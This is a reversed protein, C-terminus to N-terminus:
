KKWKRGEYKRGHGGCRAWGCKWIDLSGVALDGPVRILALEKIREKERAYIKGEQCPQSISDERIPKRARAQDQGGKGCAWSLNQRVLQNRCRLDIGQV